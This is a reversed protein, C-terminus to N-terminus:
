SCKEEIRPFSDKIVMGNPARCSAGLSTFHELTPAMEAGIYMAIAPIKEM